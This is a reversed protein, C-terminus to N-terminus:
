RIQIHPHLKLVTLSHTIQALTYGINNNLPDQLNAHHIKVSSDAAHYSVFKFNDYFWGVHSEYSLLYHWEPSHDGWAFILGHLLLPGPCALFAAWGIQLSPILNQKVLVSWSVRYMMEEAWRWWTTILFSPTVFNWHCQTNTPQTDPLWNDRLRDSPSYPCRLFEADSM